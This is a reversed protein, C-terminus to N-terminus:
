YDFIMKSYYFWPEVQKFQAELLTTDPIKEIIIEIVLARMQEFQDPVSM